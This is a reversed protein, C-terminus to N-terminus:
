VRVLDAIEVPQGTEFSRNAAIGTLVALAGDIPGAARRLPDDDPNEAFIDQLLRSDGGGHGGTAEPLTVLVPKRWLPRILIRSRESADWAEYGASALLDGHESAGPVYTNVVETVELRGRTGNFMVRFGEWPSYATLHYSMTVGSRYRVVLAMDDEISINEGFVSRDRHYGDEHEADLYLGRLEPDDELHLAWPDDHALDNGHVREYFRTEGRRQANDRGYFALRGWGFVTEPASDIWWNVLDFHHTAKHVMLGGSHHKERHWRRFYDAGHRTDLLWEFHVSLVTGIAGAQILQKVKASRPAYRANFTIRLDRGTARVADLIAQCRPADVTLPKEVIVDCGSEMARIIYEHHTSDISCIIVTDVKQELIMREFDPPKYTPVPPTHLAEAYRRNYYDMRTQNPDCYGVLAGRDRYTTLLAESYMHSRSGAGVVAYRKM